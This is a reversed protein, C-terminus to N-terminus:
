ASPTGEPSNFKRQGGTGFAVNPRAQAGTGSSLMKTIANRSETIRHRLKTTAQRLVLL